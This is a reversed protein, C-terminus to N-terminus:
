YVHFRMSCAFVLAIQYFFPIFIICVMWLAMEIDHRQGVTGVAYLVQVVILKVSYEITPRHQIDSVM